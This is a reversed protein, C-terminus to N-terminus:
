GCYRSLEKDILDLNQSIRNVTYKLSRVKNLVDTCQKLDDKLNALRNTLDQERKMSYLVMNEFKQNFGDGDMQEVYALVEDTMRVSKSNKKKAAM